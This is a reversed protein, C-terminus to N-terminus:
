LGILSTENAPVLDFLVLARSLNQNLGAMCAPGSRSTNNSRDTLPHQMSRNLQCPKEPSPWFM